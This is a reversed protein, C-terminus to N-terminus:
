SNTCFLGLGLIIAKILHHYFGFNEIELSIMFCVPPPQKCEVLAVFITCYGLSIRKVDPSHAMLMSFINFSPFNM